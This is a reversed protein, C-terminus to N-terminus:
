KTVIMQKVDSSADDVILTYSYIGASLSNAEITIEGSGGKTIPFSKLETGDSSYINLVARNYDNPIIYQITTSRNFPNPANQKLIIEKGDQNKLKRLQEESLVSKIESIEKQLSLNHANLEQV